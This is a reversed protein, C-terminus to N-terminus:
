LLLAPPDHHRVWSALPLLLVKKDAHPFTGKHVTLTATHTHPQTHTHSHTHTDTHTQTHTHTHTHTTCWHRPTVTGHRVWTISNNSLCCRIVGCPVLLLLDAAFLVPSAAM